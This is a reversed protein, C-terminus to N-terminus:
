HMSVHKMLRDSFRGIKDAAGSKKNKSDEPVISFGASKCHDARLTIETTNITKGDARKEGAAEKLSTITVTGLGASEDPELPMSAVLNTKYLERLGNLSTEVFSIMKHTGRISRKFFVIRLRRDDDGNCLERRSLTAKDWSHYGEVVDGRKSNESRFVVSWERGGAGKVEREVQWFQTVGVRGRRRVVWSRVDVVVKGGGQAGLLGEDVWEGMVVVDGRERGKKGDKGVLECRGVLRGGIEELGGLGVVGRGLFDMKGEDEGDDDRDFIEVMLESGGVVDLEHVLFSEAWQPNLDDWVTETRGVEM